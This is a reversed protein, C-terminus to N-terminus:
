GDYDLRAPPGPEPPPGPQRDADPRLDCALWAVDHWAGAKWGVSPYVGIQVFGCRRHLAISADNPLTVGGLALRIGQTRLLNLLQEYLSTGVGRGRHDADLYVSTEVTWRYAARERHPCAYAFGAVTGDDEAVIFAHTESYHAIREAFESVSPPEYEFSVPSETVFPAYIALCAAADREPHAHRILM